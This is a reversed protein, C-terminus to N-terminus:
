LGVRASPTFSFRFVKAYGPLSIVVSDEYQAEIRIERPPAYSRRINWQKPGLPLGLSDSRAVLRRRIVDDTLSPAFSAQTKVEDQMRYFRVYVELFKIGVYTVSVVLLLSFLCGARV